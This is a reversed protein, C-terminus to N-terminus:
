IVQCRVIGRTLVSEHCAAPFGAEIATHVGLFAAGLPPKLQDIRRDLDIALDAIAAGGHLRDALRGLQGLAIEVLGKGVALSQQDGGVAMDDAVQM